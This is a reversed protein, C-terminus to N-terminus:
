KLTCAWCPIKDKRIYDNMDIPFPKPPHTEDVEQGQAYPCGENSAKRFWSGQELSDSNAKPTKPITPKTKRSSLTTNVADKPGLRVSSMESKIEDRVVKRIQDITANSGGNPAAAEPAGYQKKLLEDSTSPKATVLSPTREYPGHVMLSRVLESFKLGDASTSSKAAVDTVVSSPTAEVKKPTNSVASSILQTTNKGGPLNNLELEPIKDLKLKPDEIFNSGAMLLGTLYLDSRLLPIDAPKYLSFNKKLKIISQLIKNIYTNLEGLLKSSGQVNVAKQQIIGSIFRIRNTLTDLDALNAPENSSGGTIGVRYFLFDKVLKLDELFITKYLEYNANEIMYEAQSYQSNITNIFAGIDVLRYLVRRDKKTDNTYDKKLQQYYALLDLVSEDVLAQVNKKNLPTRQTPEVKFSEHVSMFWHLLIASLFVLVLVLLQAYQM